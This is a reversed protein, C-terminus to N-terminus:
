IKPTANELWTKEEDTLFPALTNRVTNHYENVFDKEEQTLMNPNVGRLDYPCCTLTEFNLFTGYENKCLEKVAIINETRIGYKGEKYLAPENSALMGPVLEVKNQRISIGHPGEHVCLCYGIGHGTGHGFNQLDQLIPQRSILDLANGTTGPTFVARSLAIHAKLVLTFDHKMKDTLNGVVITRTTDTTGDLYQAGTDILLFGEPQITAGDGKLRYHAMAGNAMYGSITEFGDSLYHDQQKRLEILKEVVDNETLTTGNNIADDIWKFAKTMVAGERIYANRSNSLEIESKIGKLHALIDDIDCKQEIKQPISDALLVNTKDKNFYVTGLPPLAKVADAIAGYDKISFGQCTLKSAIEEIKKNDIFVFADAKTILVFAYVLPTNQIDWGRINLLWAIDDLATAIYTDINQKQMKTRLNQLKDAASLGAFKPLHEFAPLNPLAPRNAWLSGVLDTNYAYTFKDGKLTEKLEDFNAASMTNGDFGIKAGNPFKNLLFEQYTPVKPQGIKYLDFGTGNLEEAAQIFYRGDTWLGADNHTIVATGASGTFGSIWERLRWYPPLYESNHPDGSPVIYADLGHEKMLNQLNQLKNM